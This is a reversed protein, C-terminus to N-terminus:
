SASVYLANLAHQGLIFEMTDVGSPSALTTSILTGRSVTVMAVFSARTLTGTARMSFSLFVPM